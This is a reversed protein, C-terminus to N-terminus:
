AGRKGRPKPTPGRRAGHFKKLHPRQKRDRRYDKIQALGAAKIEDPNIELRQCYGRLTAPKCGLEKCVEKFTQPQVIVGVESRVQATAAPEPAGERIQRMVVYDRAEKDTPIGVKVNHLPYDEGDDGRMVYKVSRLASLMSPYASDRRQEDYASHWRVDFRDLEEMMVRFDEGMEEAWRGHRFDGLVGAYAIPDLLEAFPTEV